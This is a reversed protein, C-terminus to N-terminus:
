GGVMWAGVVDHDAAGLFARVGVLDYMTGELVDVILGLGSSGATPGDLGM